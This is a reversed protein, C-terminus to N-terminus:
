KKRAAPKEKLRKEAGRKTRVKETKTPSSAAYTALLKNFDEAILESLKSSDGVDLDRWYGWYFYDAFVEFKSPDFVQGVTGEILKFYGTSGAFEDEGVEV